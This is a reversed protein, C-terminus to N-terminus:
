REELEAALLTNQGSEIRAGVQRYYMRGRGRALPVDLTPHGDVVLPHWGPPLGDFRAIGDSATTAALPTPPLALCTTGQRIAFVVGPVRNGEPGTATVDLTGTRQMGLALETGSEDLRFRALTSHASSSFQSNGLFTGAGENRRSVWGDCQARLEVVGPRARNLVFTGDPAIDVVESSCLGLACAGDRSEYHATLKGLAIPRPVRTDIHGHVQMSANLEIHLEAALDPRAEFEAIDSRYAGSSAAIQIQHAGPAFRNSYFGGQGDTEWGGQLGETAVWRASGSLDIEDISTVPSGAITPFVQVLCGTELTIRRARPPIEISVLETAIHRPHWVRLGIQEITTSGVAYPELPLHAQGDADTHVTAAEVLWMADRTGVTTLLASAGALPTGAANLVEIRFHSDPTVSTSDTTALPTETNPAPTPAVSTGADARRPETIETATTEPRSTEASLALAAPAIPEHEAAKLTPRLWWFTVGLVLAASVGVAVIPLSAGSSAVAGHGGISEAAREMVAQRAKELCTEVSSAALLASAAVDRPLRERLERLGRQLQSRVTSPARDLTYAIAAPEMRERVAMLVVERYPAELRDIAQEIQEDFEAALAAAGPDSHEVRPDVVLSPLSRKRRTSRAHHTLIGTLWPLVPRTRDFQEAREIATLFTSQIIDEATAPDPVLHMATRMLHPAAVDFLQGLANLDSDDVFRLFLPTWDPTSM